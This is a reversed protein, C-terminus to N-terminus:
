VRTINYTTMQVRTHCLSKSM